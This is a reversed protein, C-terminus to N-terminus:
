RAHSHRLAARRTVPAVVSRAPRTDHVLAAGVSVLGREVDAFHPECWSLLRPPNKSIPILTSVQAPAGCRDCHESLTAGAAAIADALPLVPLPDDWHQGLVHAAWLLVMGADLRGTVGHTHVVCYAAILFLAAHLPPNLVAVLPQRQRHYRITLTAAVTVAVSVTLLAAACGLLLPPHM